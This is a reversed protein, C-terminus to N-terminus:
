KHEQELVDLGRTLAFRLVTSRTIRGSTALLRDKALRPILRDARRLDEVMVWVSIQERGAEKLDKKM